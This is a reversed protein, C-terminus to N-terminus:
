ESRGILVGVVIFAVLGAFGYGAYMFVNKHDQMKGALTPNKANMIKVPGNM